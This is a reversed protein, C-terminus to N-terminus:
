HGTYPICWLETHFCRGGTCSGAYFVERWESLHVLTIVPMIVDNVLSTIITGFAGGIIVGVAMDMVNGRMVFEKFEGIFGKSMDIEKRLHM